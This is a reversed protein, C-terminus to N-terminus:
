TLSFTPEAPGRHTETSVGGDTVEQVGPNFLLCKTPAIVGPKHRPENVDIGKKLIVTQPLYGCSVFTDDM